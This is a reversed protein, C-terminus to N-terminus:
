CSKCIPESDGTCKLATTACSGGSRFSFSSVDTRWDAEGAPPDDWALCVWAVEEVVDDGWFGWCGVMWSLILKALKEHFYSSEGSLEDSM